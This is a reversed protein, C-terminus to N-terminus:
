AASKQLVGIGRIVRAMPARVMQAFEPFARNWLADDSILIGGGRLYPYAQEYEFKMHEYSHLSDHIFIDLSNLDKLIAPLLERADGLYLKWRHRLWEPVIWGVCKGPPLFSGDNVDISHLAGKQNHEMALLLYSSSVGNAVGTELVCDPKFARVIAYQLLVHKAYLNAGISDTGELQEGAGCLHGHYRRDQFPESLFRKIQPATTDTLTAVFREDVGLVDRFVSKIAYTPHKSAFALRDKLNALWWQSM